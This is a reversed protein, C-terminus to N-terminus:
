IMHTFLTLRGREAQLRLASVTVHQIRSNYSNSIKTTFTLYAIHLISHAQHKKKLGQVHLKGYFKSTFTTHVIMDAILM